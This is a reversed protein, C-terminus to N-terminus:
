ESRELEAVPVEKWHESRRLGVLAGLGLGYIGGGFVQLGLWLDQSIPVPGPNTAVGVLVGIAVGSLLGIVADHGVERHMGTSIELRQVDLMRFGVFASDLVPDRHTISRRSIPPSNTFREWMWISDRQNKVFSGIRRSGGTWAGSVRIRAGPAVTDACASLPAAITMFCLLAAIWRDSTRTRTGPRRRM